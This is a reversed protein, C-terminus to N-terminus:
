LSKEWSIHATEELAIDYFQLHCSVIFLRGNKFCYIPKGPVTWSGQWHRIYSLIKKTDVKSMVDAIESYRSYVKSGTGQKLIKIEIDWDRFM